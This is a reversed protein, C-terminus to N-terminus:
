RVLAPVILYDDIALAAKKKNIIRAVFRGIVTITSLALLTLIATLVAQAENQALDIGAPAPGFDGSASM